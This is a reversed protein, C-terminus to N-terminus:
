VVHYSQSHCQVPSIIALEVDTLCTLEISPAGVEFKNYIAREPVMNKDKLCNRCSDCTVFYQHKGKEVVLGKPSLLCKELVDCACRGKYTYYDMLPAPLNRLPLLYEAYSVLDVQKMYRRQTPSLFKDCVVCVYPRLTGNNDVHVCDDLQKNICKVVEEKSLGDNKIGTQDKYEKALKRTSGDSACEFKRKGTPM